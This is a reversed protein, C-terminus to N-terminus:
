SLDIVATAPFGSYQFRVITKGSNIVISSPLKQRGPVQWDSYSWYQTRVFGVGGIGHLVVKHGNELGRDIATLIKECGVFVQNKHHPFFPISQSSAQRQDSVFQKNSDDIKPTLDSNNMLEPPNNSTVHPTKEAVRTQASSQGEKKPQFPKSWRWIETSVADFGPDKADPFKTM